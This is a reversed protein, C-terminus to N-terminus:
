AGGPRGGRGTEAGGSPRAAEDGHGGLQHPTLREGNDPFSDAPRVDEEVRTPGAPPRPQESPRPPAAQRARLRAGWWFAGILLVVVVLGAVAVLVGLGAGSAALDVAKSEHFTNPANM